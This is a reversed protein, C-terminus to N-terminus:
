RGGSSGGGGGGGGGASSGGSSASGSAASLSSSLSTISRSLSSFSNLSAANSAGLWTASRVMTSEDVGAVPAARELTRLYKEAVGLAAAYAYYVDWLKFFDLPADKMRTYDTLTRKFGNWEAVEQAIEPRWSPLSVLAVLACVMLAGAGVIMMVMADKELFFAGAAPVLAALFAYGAWRRAVGRSEATTLEGGRQRELWKRVKRGWPAMFSSANSQSYSKLREHTVLGDASAARQLYRLVDLEFPLLQATPESMDLKIDVKNRRRPQFEGYGRRMLDMITAHFAPGTRGANFSQDQFHAVAAPPLDAPPEFPYKMVQVDPERGVRRYQRTIGVGVLGLLALPLLAWEPRRRNMLSTELGQVEAEDLLLNEFGPQTGRREFLAPDMLYRIEVADDGPIRDFQVTLSSRDQSLEVRPEELNGFRHVYADYPEAMPGPIDVTLHYGRVVPHDDELIKWYWQVVDSYYDIAGELRYVFRVRRESIRRDNRVVLETGLACPQTFARAAPGSGLAGSGELMTISQDGALRVCIFAEGFDEDTWLTRTDNVIVSGDSRIQVEQVVDRWEYSQATASALAAALLLSLALATTRRIM